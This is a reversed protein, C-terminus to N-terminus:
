YLNLNFKMKAQSISALGIFGSRWLKPLLYFPLVEYVGWLVANDKNSFNKFLSSRSRNYFEWLEGRFYRTDRLQNIGLNIMVM